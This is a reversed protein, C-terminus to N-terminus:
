PLALAVYAASPSRAAGAIENKVDEAIASSDVATFVAAASAGRRTRKNTAQKSKSEDSAPVVGRGRKKSGKAPQVRVTAPRACMSTCM